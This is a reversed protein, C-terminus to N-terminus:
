AATEESQRRCTWSAETVSRGCKRRGLRKDIAELFEGSSPDRRVTTPLDLQAM